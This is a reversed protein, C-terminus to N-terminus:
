TPSGFKVIATYTFTKTIPMFDLLGRAVGKVKFTVTGLRPNASYGTIPLTGYSVSTIDYSVSSEDLEYGVANAWNAFVSTVAGEFAELGVNDLSWSLKTGRSVLSVNGSAVTGYGAQECSIYGNTATSASISCALPSPYKVTGVGNVVITVNGNAFWVNQLEGLSNVGAVSSTSAILLGILAALLSIRKVERNEQTM